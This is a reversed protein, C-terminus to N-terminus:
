NYSGMLDFNFNFKISKLFLGYFLFICFNWNGELNVLWILMVGLEVDLELFILDDIVFLFLSNVIYNQIYGVSFMVFFIILKEVNIEQYRGMLIYSVLQVLNFNGIM